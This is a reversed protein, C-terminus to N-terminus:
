PAGRGALLRHAKAEEVVDCDGGAHDLGLEAEFADRDHVPVDVVAVAGLVDKEVIRANEVNGDMLPREVWSRAGLVVLVLAEQVDREGGARRVLVVQARELLEDLGGDLGESWVENEYGGAEVRM